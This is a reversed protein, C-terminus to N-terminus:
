LTVNYTEVNRHVKVAKTLISGQANVGVVLVGAGEHLRYTYFSGNGKAKKLDIHLRKAAAEVDQTGDYVARLEKMKDAVSEYRFFPVYWIKDSGKVLFHRSQYDDALQRIISYDTKGAELEVPFIEDGDLAVVVVGGQLRAVSFTGDPKSSKLTAVASSDTRMARWLSDVLLPFNVVREAVIARAHERRLRATLDVAEAYSPLEVYKVARHQTGNWRKLVISFSNGAATQANLEGVPLALFAVLCALRSIVHHFTLTKM